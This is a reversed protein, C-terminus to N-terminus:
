TMEQTEIDTTNLAEGMEKLSRLYEEQTCVESSQSSKQSQSSSLARKEEETCVLKYLAANLTANTSEFWKLRLERKLKARNIELADKLSQTEALGSEYFIAPEIDSFIFLEDFFVLNNEKILELCLKKLKETKTKSLKKMVTIEAGSDSICCSHM